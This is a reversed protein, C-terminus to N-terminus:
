YTAIKIEVVGNKKFTNSCMIKHIIDHGELYKQLNSNQYEGGNDSRIVRLKRYNQTEIMKHFNQFLLNVVDKIKMLCLWTM